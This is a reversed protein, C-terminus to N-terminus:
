RIAALIFNENLIDWHIDNFTPSNGCYLVNNQPDLIKHSARHNSNKQNFTERYIAKLSIKILSM